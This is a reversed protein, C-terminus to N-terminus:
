VVDKLAEKLGPQGQPLFSQFIVHLTVFSVKALSVLAKGLAEDDDRAACALTECGLFATFAALFAQRCRLDEGIADTSIKPLSVSLQEGACAPSLKKGTLFSKFTEPFADYAKRESPFVLYSHAAEEYKLKGTDFYESMAGKCIKDFSDFLTMGETSVAFGRNSPFFVDSSQSVEHRTNIVFSGFGTFAERPQLVVEPNRTPKMMNAEDAPAYRYRFRPPDAKGDIEVQEPGHTYGDIVMTDKSTVRHNPTILRWSVFWDEDDDGLTPVPSTARPRVVLPSSPDLLTGASKASRSPAGGSCSEHGPRPVTVSEVRRHTASSTSQFGSFQPSAQEEDRAQAQGPTDFRNGEGLGTHVVPPLDPQLEGGEQGQNSGRASSVSSSDSLYLDPDYSPCDSSSISHSPSSPTPLDPLEVLKSKAAWNFRFRLTTREMPDRIVGWRVGTPREVRPINKNVGRVWAMLRRAYTKDQSTAM